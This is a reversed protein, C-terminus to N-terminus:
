KIGTQKGTQHLFKTVEMKWLEPAYVVLSEHGGGPFSVLQNPGALSQFIANNQETTVRPDMEGHHLLTPIRVSSAYEAPNHTFGNFGQQVSGWLVLLEASPFAPLGMAHFRNGVTGVLSDFPSELILADAQVGEVALARLIAAAGM